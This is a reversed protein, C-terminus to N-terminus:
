RTGMQSTDIGEADLVERDLRCEHPFPGLEFDIFRHVRSEDDHIEIEEAARQGHTGCLRCVIGISGKRTAVWQREIEVQRGPTGDALLEYTPSM